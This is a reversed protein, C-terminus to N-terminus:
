ILFVFGLLNLLNNTKKGWLIRGWNDFFSIMTM